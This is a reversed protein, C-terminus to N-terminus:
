QDSGNISDNTTYGYVVADIRGIGGDTGCTLSIRSSRDLRIGYPINVCVAQDHPFHNGNDYQALRCLRVEQGNVVGRVYASGGTLYDEASLSMQVATLILDKNTPTEALILDNDGQEIYGSATFNNIPQVLIVPQMTPVVENIQEATKFRFLRQLWQGFSPNYTKM